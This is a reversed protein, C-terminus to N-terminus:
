VSPLFLNSARLVFNSVFCFNLFEFNLVFALRSRAITKKNKNQDGPSPKKTKTKTM